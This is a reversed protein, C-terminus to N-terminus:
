KTEKATLAARGAPTIRYGCDHYGTDPVREILGLDLWRCMDHDSIPEDRKLHGGWMPEHQKALWSLQLVDFDSLKREGREPM